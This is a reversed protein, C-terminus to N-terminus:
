APPSPLPQPHRGLASILDAPPFGRGPPAEQVRGLSEHGLILRDAGPPAWGYQGTAIERDTGCVGLALGEVLLEGPGPVPDPFDTVALSGAQMPVVSLARM